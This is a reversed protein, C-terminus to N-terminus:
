PHDWWLTVLVQDSPGASWLGEHEALRGGLSGEIEPDREAPLCLRRRTLAIADERREFGSPSTERNRDERHVDIGLEELSGVATDATPERPRVLGHFRMWLDNMWSLPHERTIEVVVRHRAHEGLARVFPELDQVNYLVHNCVVVDVPPALPSVEPWTGFLEQTPIRRNRFTERFLDLMERSTDVGVVLSARDGLPLSAAGGGVGVDLVRGGKPLAEMARAASADLPRTAATEARVRMLEPPFGWPSEPVAALIDEPIAWTRLMEGWAQLARM